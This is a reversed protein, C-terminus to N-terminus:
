SWLIFLLIYLANEKKDVICGSYALWCWSISSRKHDNSYWPRLTTKCYLIVNVFFCTCRIISIVVRISRNVFTLYFLQSVIETNETLPFLLTKLIEWFWLKRYDDDFKLFRWLKWDQSQFLYKMPQLIVPDHFSVWLSEILM